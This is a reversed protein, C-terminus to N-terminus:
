SIAKLQEAIIKGLSKKDAVESKEVQKWFEALM